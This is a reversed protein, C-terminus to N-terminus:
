FGTIEGARGSQLLGIAVSLNAVSREDTGEFILNRGLEVADMAGGNRLGDVLDQLGQIPRAPQIAHQEPM